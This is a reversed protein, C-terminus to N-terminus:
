FDKSKVGQIKYEQFFLTIKNNIDSLKTVRFDFVDGKKVVYGCNFYQILSRILQEDRAYQTLQFVLGTTEGLLHSKYKIISVM